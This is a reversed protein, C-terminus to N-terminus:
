GVWFSLLIWDQIGVKPLDSKKGQSPIWTLSVDIFMEHSGSGCWAPRLHGWNRSCSGIAGWDLCLQPSMGTTPLKVPPSCGLPLPDSGSYHIPFMYAIYPYIILIPSLNIWNYSRFFRNYFMTLFWRSVPSFWWTDCVRPLEKAGVSHRM